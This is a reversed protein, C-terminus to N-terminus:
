KSQNTLEILEEATNGLLFFDSIDKEEKTGELPLVVRHVNKLGKSQLEQIRRMSENKGTTDTDYLFFIDKFRLSLEQMLLFPVASTESNFCVAHFGHAALSLVDKEGGTIYVNQGELPLQKYGFIYPKPQEGGYLFRNKSNPRYLKLGNGNNFTYGFIMFNDRSYTLFSKDPKTFLCRKVSYVNYKKLINHTIGYKGWFELESPSYPKFVATYKYPKSQEIKPIVPTPKPYEIEKSISINLSLDKVIISLIDYFNRTTSLNHIKGVIEFCDGCWESSGYDHMLYHDNKVYLKCSANSDKRYTNRFNKNGSISFYHDFIDFGNNTQALIAEKDIM